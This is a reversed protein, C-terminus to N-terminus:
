KGIGLRESRQRSYEFLFMECSTRVNLSRVLGLQPIELVIDCENLLEIGIGEKEAGLVLLVRDPLRARGLPESRSAQELAVATYGQRKRARVYDLMHEAKVAHMPLWDGATVSINAFESERTVRLDHLCLSQVGLVECTRAIGALNPLKGVLSALVIVPQYRRRGGGSALRAEDAGADGEAAAHTLLPHARERLALSTAHPREPAAPGSGGDGTDYDIAPVPM